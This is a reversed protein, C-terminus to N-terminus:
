PMGSGLPGLQPVLGRLRAISSLQSASLGTMGPLLATAAMQPPRDAAAIWRPRGRGTVVGPNSGAAKSILQREGGEIELIEVVERVDRTAAARATAQGIVWCVAAAIVEPRGPTQLMGSLGLVARALLRLCATRYEDGLLEDCCRDCAALVQGVRDRACAPVRDWGFQEEPLPADDLSDLADQGGAEEALQDLVHRHFGSPEDEWEQDDLVGM